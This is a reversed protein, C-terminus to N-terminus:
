RCGGRPSRRHRCGSRPMHGGVHVAELAPALELVDTVELEQAGIGLLSMVVRGGAVEALAQLREGLSGVGAHQDEVSGLSGLNRDTNSAHAPGRVQTRALRLGTYLVRGHDRVGGPGHWVGQARQFQGFLDGGLERDQRAEVLVQRGLAGAGAVPDAAQEGM